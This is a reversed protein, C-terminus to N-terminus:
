KISDALLNVANMNMRTRTCTGGPARQCYENPQCTKSGCKVRRRSHASGSGKLPVPEAQTLMVETCLLVVVVILALSKM